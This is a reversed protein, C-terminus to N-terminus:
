GTMGVAIPWQTYMRREALTAYDLHVRTGHAVAPLRPWARATRVLLAALNHAPSRM